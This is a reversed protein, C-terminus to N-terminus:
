LTHFPYKNYVNKSFFTVKAELNKHSESQTDELTQSIDQIECPSSVSSQTCLKMLNHDPFTHSTQSLHSPYPINKANTKLPSNNITPVAETKQNYQSIDTNQQKKVWKKWNPFHITQKEM